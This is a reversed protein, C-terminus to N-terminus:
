ASIKPGTLKYVLFSATFLTHRPNYTYGKFPKIPAGIEEVGEFYQKLVRRWYFPTHWSIHAEGSEIFRVTRKFTEQYFGPIKRSKSYRKVMPYSFLQFHPERLLEWLWPTTVIAVGDNKLVRTIEEIVKSPSPVHELLESAIIVDFTKARFPVASADGRVSGPSKPPRFDLAYVEANKPFASPEMSYREGSGLDLVKIKKESSKLEFIEQVLPTKKERLDPTLYRAKEEFIRLIRAVVSLM